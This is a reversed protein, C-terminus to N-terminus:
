LRTLLCPAATTGRVVLETSVKQRHAPQRQGGEVPKHLELLMEMALRGIEYRPLAVTTLAPHVENCLSIDDLGIISLDEPIRLGHAAASWMLGLATLDNAAFIASPPEPTRLLQELAKRGGCISLNGEVMVPESSLACANMAKLFANRRQRSTSLHMPGSVHAIRRHGLQALHCVAAHIGEEFDVLISSMREALGGIDWDFVVAPTQARDLEQLWDDSINSSMILVGDVQRAILSRTYAKGRELDYNTNCLLVSYGKALAIDEVGQIVDAYFPNGIDSILLGVANTRRSSLSRAVTSPHYALDLIAQEVRKRTDPRMYHTNENLVRSVTSKSVGALRAVDAITPRTM